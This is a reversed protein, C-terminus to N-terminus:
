ALVAPLNHQGHQWRAQGLLRGVLLLLGDQLLLALRIDGQSLECFYLLVGALIGPNGAHQHLEHTAAEDRRGVSCSDPDQWWGCGGALSGASNCATTTIVLLLWL